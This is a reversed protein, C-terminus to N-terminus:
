ETVEVKQADIVEDVCVKLAAWAKVLKMYEDIDLARMSAKQALNMAEVADILTKLPINM